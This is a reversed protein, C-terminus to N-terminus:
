CVANELADMCVGDGDPMGIWGLTRLARIPVNSDRCASQSAVMSQKSKNCKCLHRENYGLLWVCM